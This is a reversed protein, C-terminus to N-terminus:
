IVTDGFIYEFVCACMDLASPWSHSINTSIQHKKHTDIRMYFRLSFSNRVDPSSFVKDM